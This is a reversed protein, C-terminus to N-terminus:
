HWVYGEVRVKCDVDLKSFIYIIGFIAILTFHPKGRQPLVNRVGSCISMVKWKRTGLSMQHDGEDNDRTM